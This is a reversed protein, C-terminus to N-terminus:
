DNYLIRVDKFKNSSCQFIKCYNCDNITTSVSQYLFFALWKLVSRWRWKRNLIQLLDPGIGKPHERPCKLLILHLETSFRSATRHNESCLDRMIARQLSRAESVRALSIKSLFFYNRNKQVAKPTFFVQINLFTSKRRFIMGLYKCYLAM